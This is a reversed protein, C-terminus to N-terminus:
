GPADDTPGGAVAHLLVQGQGSQFPCQGRTLRQRPQDMMGVLAALVARAVISLEQGVVLDDGGHASFPVTVVVGNAAVDVAEIMGEPPM